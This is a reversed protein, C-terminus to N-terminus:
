HTLPALRESLTKTLEPLAKIAEVLSDLVNTESQAQAMLAQILTNGLLSKAKVQAMLAQILVDRTAETKSQEMLAEILIDRLQTDTRIQKVLDSRFHKAFAAENFASFLESLSADLKQRLGENDSSALDGLEHIYASMFSAPARTALAYLFASTNSLGALQEILVDLQGLTRLKEVLFPLFAEPLLSPPQNLQDLLTGFWAPIQDAKARTREMIYRILEENSADEQNFRLITGDVTLNHHVTVNCDDGVTLCPVFDNEETSWHGIVVENISGDVASEAMEIRLEDRTTADPTKGNLPSGSKSVHYMRWPQATESAPGAGFEVAGGEILLDGWLSTNARLEITATTNTSSESAIATAAKIGLVPTAPSQAPSEPQAVSGQQDQNALFIAFRYENEPWQGIQLWAWDSAARLMEGRLGAYPRGDLSIQPQAGRRLQGLFIPWRREPDDSPVREPSFRLDDIAIGEPQRQEPLDIGPQLRRAANAKRFVVRVGEKLRNGTMDTACSRSDPPSEQSSQQTYELYVDLIESGKDDFIGAEIPQYQALILERGYGDIAMGVQVGLDGNRDQALELGYVIGWIHGAINHRRRQALHYAQEDTFDSSRLIQRDYYRVRSIPSDSM